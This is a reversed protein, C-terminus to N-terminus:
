LEEVVCNAKIRLSCGQPSTSVYDGPPLESLFAQHGNWYVGFLSNNVCLASEPFSSPYILPKSPCLSVALVVSGPAGNAGDQGNQGDAGNTGNQGDVGDQGNNVTSESGDPCKIVAGSAVSTVSCPQGNEGKFAGGCGPILLVSAAFISIVIIYMLVTLIAYLSPTRM